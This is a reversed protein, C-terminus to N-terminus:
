PEKRTSSLLLKLQQAFIHIKNWFMCKITRRAMMSSTKFATSSTKAKKGLPAELGVGYTQWM